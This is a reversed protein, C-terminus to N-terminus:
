GSEKPQAILEKVREVALFVAVPCIRSIPHRRCVTKARSPNGRAPANATRAALPDLGGHGREGSHGLIIFFGGLWYSEARQFPALNLNSGVHKPEGFHEFAKKLLPMKWHAAEPYNVSGADKSIPLRIEQQSLFGQEVLRDPSFLLPNGAFASSSQYPSNDGGTPGIPLMQWRRQGSTSCFIWLPLQRRDWIASRTPM